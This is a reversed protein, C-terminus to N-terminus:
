NALPSPSYRPPSHSSPIFAGDPFSYLLVELYHCRHAPALSPFAPHPIGRVLLFLPGQQFFLHLAKSSFQFERGTERFFLPDLFSPFAQVPTFPSNVRLLPPPVPLSPADNLPPAPPTSDSFMNFHSRTPFSGNQKRSVPIFTRSPEGM